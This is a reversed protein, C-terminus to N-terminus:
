HTTTLNFKVKKEKNGININILHKCIDFEEKKKLISKKIIFPKKIKNKNKNHLYNDIMIPCNNIKHNNQNCFECFNETLSLINNLINNNLNIKNDEENVSTNNKKDIINNNITNIVKNNTKYFNYNIELNNYYSNNYFINNFTNM